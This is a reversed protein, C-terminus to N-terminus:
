TKRRGLWLHRQLTNRAPGPQLRVQVTSGTRGKVVCIDSQGVSVQLGPAGPQHEALVPTDLLWLPEQELQIKLLGLTSIRCFAAPSGYWAPGDHLLANSADKSDRPHSHFPSTPGTYVM